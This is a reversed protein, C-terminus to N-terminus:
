GDVGLSASLGVSDSAPSNLMARRALPHAHADGGTEPHKTRRACPRPQVSDGLFVRAGSRMSHARRREGGCARGCAMYNAHACPVGGAQQMWCRARQQNSRGRVQEMAHSCAARLYVPAAPSVNQYGAIVALADPCTDPTPMSNPAVSYGVAPTSDNSAALPTSVRLAPGCAVARVHPSGARCASARMFHLAAAAASARVDQGRWRPLAACTCVCVRVRAACAESNAQTFRFINDVFLLM